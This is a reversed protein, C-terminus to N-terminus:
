RVRCLLLSYLSSHLLSHLNLVAAAERRRRSIVSQARLAPRQLCCRSSPLRCLACHAQEACSDVALRCRARVEGVRPVAVGTHDVRTTGPKWRYLGVTGYSGKGLDRVKQLTNWDIADDVTASKRLTGFAAEIRVQSRARAEARLM